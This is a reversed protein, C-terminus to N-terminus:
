DGNKFVVEETLLSSKIVATGKGLIDVVFILQVCNRNAFAVMDELFVLPKNLNM